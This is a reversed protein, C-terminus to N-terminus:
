GWYVITTEMENEMTEINGWYVVTTEMKNGNDWYLELIGALGPKSKPGPGRVDLPSPKNDLWGLPGLMMLMLHVPNTAFGGWSGLMMLM